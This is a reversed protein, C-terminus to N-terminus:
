DPQLPRNIQSRDGGDVHMPGFDLPESAAGAGVRMAWGRRWALLGGAALYVAGGLLLAARYGAVFAVLVALASGVVSAVGNVAFGWDILAGVRRGGKPFPMGMCLGLPAILVAATAARPGLGWGGCLEAVRAFLMVDLLLWAAIGLFPLADGARPSLRSGLGSGLLLVALVTILGYVSPGILLTFQQILVVEVMMFAMGLLFFYLWPAARLRPGRGLRPLLTLPAVLLLSAALVVAVLLKALPFGRFEYPSIQKLAGPRFNKWLGLQATFPRNDDCPSIDIPADAAAAKWGGEVIRQILNDRDAEDAPYLLHIQGHREPTLPWYATRRIEDTLPQKSLLLLNRRMAPLDYVALHAAPDAVGLDQLALLAESVLRPMYFQHEMSLFGDDSLALWYDRFAERTFLYNEAMAFSGSALAAFTNSSLSYILDFEGRHRRVYSRGDETAVTVRPDHYLRGTFDALPGDTLLRNIHPVVEVAHVEDAGYVLAQLVDGGGGAGLSLFTCRDFREILPRVDIGFVPGAERPPPTFDGDFRHVPSNAANDIELGKADEGYDYVKLKAVADWHTYSVPAREQRPKSLLSEAQGGLVAMAALVVVALPKARRPLTLAAGLLVPAGCAFVATPTGLVNMVAVCLLVGLGAGALDATYLRPLEAHGRAFLHALVAGGCFYAAGLVLATLAVNGALAWSQFIRGFDANVAFALPPGATAAAATALLWWPLAREDGAARSLRVALAGLGLGLVAVSLILFAFSYFFEASFVRTWALELAILSLSTLAVLLGRRERM